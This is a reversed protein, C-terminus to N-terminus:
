NPFWIDGVKKGKLEVVMRLGEKILDSAESEYKELKEENEEYLKLKAKLEAIGVQLKESIHKKTRIARLSPFARLVLRKFSDIDIIERFGAMYTARYIHFFWQFLVDKTVDEVNTWCMGDIVACIVTAAVSKMGSTLNPNGGLDGGHKVLLTQLIPALTNPVMYGDVEIVKQRMYKEDVKLGESLVFYFVEENLNRFDHSDFHFLPQIWDIDEVSGEREFRSNHERVSAHVSTYMIKNDNTFGFPNTLIQKERESLSNMFGRFTSEMIGHQGSVSKEIHFSSWRVEGLACLEVNEHSDGKVKIVRM